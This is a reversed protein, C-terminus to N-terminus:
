SAACVHITEFNKNFLPFFLCISDAYVKKKLNKPQVSKKQKEKAYKIM